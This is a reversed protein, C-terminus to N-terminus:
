QVVTAKKLAFFQSGGGYGTFTVDVQQSMEVRYAILAGNITFSAGSEFKVQGTPFYMTGDMRSVSNAKFLNEMYPAAPDTYFLVGPLASTPDTDGYLNLSVSGSQVYIPGWGYSAGAPPATNLFTTGSGTSRLSFGGGTVNLGGGRLIYLGENLTYDGQVTIGGCYTGPQLTRTGGLSYGGTLSGYDCTNPVAPMPTQSMPDATAPVNYAPAPRIKSAGGASPGGVGMFPVTIQASTGAVNAGIPSTSNVQAGCGRGTLRASNDLKLANDASPDLVLFCYESFTIGATAETHIVTSNYGFIKAFATPVTREVAVHVFNPGAYPANTAPYTVTVINGNVLHEFGNRKTESAASEEVSDVRNRWIEIAGALAGADAATQAMRKQQQLAGVDLALALISILLVTSVGALVLIAGRRNGARACRSQRLTVDRWPSGNQSV